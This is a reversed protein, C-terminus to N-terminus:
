LIDKNESLLMLTERIGNTNKSEVIDQLDYATSQILRKTDIVNDSLSILAKKYFLKRKYSEYNGSAGVFNMSQYKSLVANYVKKRSKESLNNIKNEVTEFNDTTNLENL